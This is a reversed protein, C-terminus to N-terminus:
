KKLSHIIQSSAPGIAAQAQAHLQHVTDGADSDSLVFQEMMEVLQEIRTNLQHITSSITRASIASEEAMSTIASINAAIEESSRNKERNMANMAKITKISHEMNEIIRTFVQEANSALTTGIEVEKESQSIAQVAHDTDAQIRTITDSIEKTSLVTREALKRVEAAVVAFGRGHEGARAAEIAANLALLNTQDSIDRITQVVEEIKGANRHLKTITSAAEVVKDHILNMSSVTKHLVEAGEMANKGTIEAGLAAEDSYLTSEAITRAVSEIAQAVAQANNFQKQAGEALFDTNSAIERSFNVTEDITNQVTHLTYNMNQIAINLEQSLMHVEDDNGANFYIALNGQAFKRVELLMNQIATHLYDASQRAANRLTDSELAAQKAQGAAILSQKLLQSSSFIFGAFCLCLIVLIIVFAYSTLEATDQKELILSHLKPRLEDEIKQFELDLKKNIEIQNKLAQFNFTYDNLRQIILAKIDTNLTSARATLILQEVAEANKKIYKQDGRLFYDKEHRRITLLLVLLKTDNVSKFVEEAQHVAKRMQGTKGSNEDLGQQVLGERILVFKNKLEQAAPFLLEFKEELLAPLIQLISDASAADQEKKLGIFDRELRLAESLLNDARTLTQYDSLSKKELVFTTIFVLMVLLVIGTLWTLKKKANQPM